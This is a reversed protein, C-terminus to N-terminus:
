FCNKSRTIKGNTIIRYVFDMNLRPKKNKEFYKTLGILKHSKQFDLLAYHSDSLFLPILLQLEFESLIKKYESVTLAKPFPMIKSTGTCQGM